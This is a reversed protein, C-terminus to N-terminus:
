EYLMFTAVVARHDSPYPSVIIDANKKNEGVIKVSKVKLNKGKFYVFDIRDHHDKPDDAKTLPSWTHGPYKMEDPRFERWSDVFGKEALAKSSPYEVKIPHRGAKAAAATWDLHSPENFDGTIFVPLNKNTLKEIKSFLETIQKGRAKKAHTIAEQETKIFAAKGYPINMLQYPQYPAPKLHLNFVCVERGSDLKLKAGGNLKEVIEFRTLISSWGHKVYNWGLLAALEKANDGVEQLGVIDAGSAQIVKATQSLAQGRKTGGHLVNYSMVKLGEEDTQHNNPNARTVHSAGVLCGLSFLLTFIMRKSKM